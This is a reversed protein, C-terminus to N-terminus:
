VLYTLTAWAAFAGFNFGFNSVLEAILAELM